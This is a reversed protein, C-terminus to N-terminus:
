LKNRNAKLLTIKIEHSPNRNKHTLGLSETKKHEKQPKKKEIKDNLM